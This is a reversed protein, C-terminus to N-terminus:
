FTSDLSLRIVNPKGVLALAAGDKLGRGVGGLGVACGTCGGGALGLGNVLGTGCPFGDVTGGGIFVGRGGSLLVLGHIRLLSENHSM